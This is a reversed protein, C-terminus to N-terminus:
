VLLKPPVLLAQGPAAPTAASIRDLFGPRRQSSTRSIM